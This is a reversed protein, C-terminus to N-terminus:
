RILLMKRASHFRGASVRYLYIASAVRVGRDDLGDWVVTKTGPSQVANVLTRVRRGDVSFVDLRVHTPEGVTYSIATRPGFPNPSNQRLAFALAPTAIRQPFSQVDDGEERVVLLTYAYEHGPAVWGDAFYRASAHLLGDVPLLATRGENVDRRIIRFGLVVDDSVIDWLLEVSEASLRASFASILTPVQVCGVPFAGVLEGCASMTASAPSSEALTFDGAPADCFMPDDVADTPDLPGNSISGAQNNWFVNCFTTTPRVLGYGDTDGSLICRTVDVTTELDAAITGSGPSSNNHFTSSSVDSNSHWFGYIAAGAQSASNALFLCESVTLQDNEDCMLAGGWDGASNSEFECQTFTNTGGVHAAGGFFGAHNREFRCGTVLLNLDHSSLVQKGHIAGGTGDAWNDAFRCDNVVITEGPGILLGGGNGSTYGNVLSFGGIELDMPTRIRILRSSGQGDLITTSAGDASRLVIPRYLEIPGNYTGPGVEVTDGFLAAAVGDPINDFDAPGSKRVTITKPQPLMPPGCGMGLRGVRGCLNNAPLAPSASALTYDSLYVDCFLPDAVLEDSSLTGQRIPGNTNNWFVNCSHPGEAGFSYGLGFGSKTNSIINGSIDVGTGDVVWVAASIGSVNTPNSDLTSSRLSGTADLGFQVVGGASNAGWNRFFLCDVIDMSARDALAAGTNETFTCRVLDAHGSSSSTVTSNGGPGNRFFYCDELLVQAGIGSVNVTSGGRADNYLFRCNRVQATGGSVAIAGGVSNGGFGNVFEFGTISTQSARLSFIRNMGEGDLVTAEAGHTSVFTLSMSWFDIEPGIYTGPGVEITDGTIAAAVADPITTYDGSGDQRVTLTGAHAPAPLLIVISLLGAALVRSIKSV